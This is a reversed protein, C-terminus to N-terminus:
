NRIENIESVCSCGTESESVHATSVQVKEIELYKNLSHTAQSEHIQIAIHPYLSRLPKGHAHWLKLYWDCDVLFLLNTNLPILFGKRLFVVSPASVSNIGNILDDSVTPVKYRRTPKGQLDVDRSGCIMWKKDSRAFKKTLKGLSTAHRFYDDQFMIKILDFNANYIAHNLNEAANKSECVFHIITLQNSYRAKLASILPYEHNSTFIIEAPKNTQNNINEILREIFFQVEFNPDFLPIVLSVKPLNVKKRQFIKMNM